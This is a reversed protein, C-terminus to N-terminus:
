LAILENWDKLYFRLELQKQSLPPIYVIVTDYLIAMLKISVNGRVYAVGKQSHVREYIDPYVDRYGKVYGQANLTAQNQKIMDMQKEHFLLLDNKKM